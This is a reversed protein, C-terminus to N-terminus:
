SRRIPKSASETRGSQLLISNLGSEVLTPQAPPARPLVPPPFQFKGCLQRRECEWQKNNIGREGFIDATSFDQYHGMGRLCGPFVGSGQMEDGRGAAPPSNHTVSKGPEGSFEPYSGTAKEEGQGWGSRPVYVMRTKGLSDQTVRAKSEPFSVEGTGWVM